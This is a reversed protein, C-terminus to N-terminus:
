GLRKFIVTFVSGTPADTNESYELELGNLKCIESVVYLGLGVSKESSETKSGIGAFRRFLLPQKEKPVGVGNDIIRLFIRDETADVSIKISGGPLTYKIANDLLNVYIGKLSNEDCFVKPDPLNIEVEVQQNKTRAKQLLFRNEGAIFKELYIVKPNVLYRGDSIKYSDLVNQVIINIQGACDEISQIKASLKQWGTEAEATRELATAGDLTAAEDFTAAGDLAADEAFVEFEERLSQIENLLVTLPTNVNHTVFYLFATKEKESKLIEQKEQWLNRYNELIQIRRVLASVDFPRLLFDNIQGEFNKELLYSSHRDAILLIPFELVTYKKRVTRCLEFCDDDESKPLVILMQILGDEVAFLAEQSHELIRVFFGYSQLILRLILSCNDAGDRAYIGISIRNAVKKQLSVSRTLQLLIDNERVGDRLGSTQRAITDKIKWVKKLIMQAALNQSVQNEDVCLLNAMAQITQLNEFVEAVVGEMSQKEPEEAKKPSTKEDELGEEFFDQLSFNKNEKEEFIQNLASNVFLLLIEVCVVFSFLVDFYQFEFRQWFFLLILLSISVITIFISAAKKM